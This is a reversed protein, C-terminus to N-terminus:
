ARRSDAPRAAASAPMENVSVARVFDAGPVAHADQSMAFAVIQGITVLELQGRARYVDIAERAALRALQLDAFTPEMMSSLTALVFMMLPSAPAEEDPSRVSM